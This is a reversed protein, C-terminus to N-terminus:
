YEAVSTLAMTYAQAAAAGPILIQISTIPQNAYATGSADWCATNFKTYDVMAPSASGFKLLDDAVLKRKSFKRITISSGKLALPAIVANV